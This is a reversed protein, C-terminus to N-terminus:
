KFTRMQMLTRLQMISQRGAIGWSDSRRAQARNSFLPVETEPSAEKEAELFEIVASVAAAYKKRNREM